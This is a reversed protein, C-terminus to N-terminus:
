RELLWRIGLATRERADKYHNGPNLRFVTDIRSFIDTQYLSYLAFLGALSYGAIGRWLVNGSIEKETEPIIKGCLLGLFEDAGGTCPEANKFVPPIEWPSMDHNWDLGSVIVLTFPPCGGGKLIRLVQEGEGEGEFTNLYIVPCDPEDCPYVSIQKQGIMFQIM